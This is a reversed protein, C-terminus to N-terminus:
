KKYHKLITKIEEILAIVEEPTNYISFSVRISDPLQYKNYWSHACHKGSRIMINKSKNLINSIMLSDIGKIYFNFINNRLEPLKPGILIIESNNALKDSLIANLKIVHTKINDIGIKSIYDIAAKFGMAGAYNQLGAEFKDPLQSISFSDFKSDTVTEGGIMFPPYKELLEKKGYLCGMGSPGFMKHASFAYFDAQNERVNISSSSATQAGDILLLAGNEHTIKAIEKVPYAVGTVNSVNPISVLGVNKNIKEQFKEISFTLDKNLNFSNYEIGKEMKLKQWPLLNSNHELESILVTKDKLPIINSLMNIGETTNRTFIIEEIRRASIFKQISKRSFAYYKSTQESFYHLSRGHCGPFERYYKTISDIVSLPKLTVCANDLYIPPKGNIDMNLSPFDERIVETNLLM